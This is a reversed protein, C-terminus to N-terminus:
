STEKFAAAEALLEEAHALGTASRELGALMRAIERVRQEESLQQVSTETYSEDAAKEVKLHNDAFAAVQPLHSVVIVQAERALLALRKGIEIATAGGVGSDVEDFVFTPTSKPDALVVELALMIRSLEGGSAATAISRAATSGPATLEIAVEDAGAATPSSRRLSVTLKNGSMALGALEKNVAAALRGGAVTRAATLKESAQTLKGQTEKLAETAGAANHTEPDLEELRLRAGDAQALVDELTTGYRHVLAKLEVERDQAQHLRAISDGDVAELEDTILREVQDLEDLIKEVRDSAAAAAPSVDVVSSLAKALHELMVGPGVAEFDEPNLVGAGTRLAELISDAASLSRIEQELRELEGEEPELHDVEQVFRRLAEYERKRASANEVLEKVLEQAAKWSRYAQLYSRHAKSVAEGGFRDLAERQAQPTRLRLQDAQGHINVLGAGLESLVGAPTSKGGLVARSKGDPQVTRNVFLMDDELLAGAEEARARQPGEPLQWCGEVTAAATGERAMGAKARRGLLLHLASLVMTKGAGTEGTIATLGATFPLHTKKIIGLNQITIEELM